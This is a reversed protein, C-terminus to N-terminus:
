RLDEPFSPFSSDFLRWVAAGISLLRADAHHAGVLQISVPLGNPGRYTPLGLAPVHLLTWLAQFSPDGAYHLGQPAEGQVCPTLLADYGAALKALRSRMAQAYRQAELFKEHTAAWGREISRTLQPSIRERDSAWEAALGRAREYDNLIERTASLQKFEDPLDLTEVKIGAAQLTAAAAEVAAHTEPGGSDWLHTRVLAIRAPKFPVLPESPLGSLVRDILYLDDISRAMWGLTDLSEAAFKLGARNIRGYSPKYGFVGCYSAPRLVSGGTQTGFAIPVMHDAVAAGSGSSSGGPTHAPNHPNLTAAPAMGAFEATVTKGLIVAGAARLMAVVSADVKPQHGAYIPSGMQTPMDATDIVDKIAIPVGHLPGRHDGAADRRRAAALAQEPDIHAWAGLHPERQAIRELCAGVWDESKAQGAAMLALIETATLTNLSRNPM